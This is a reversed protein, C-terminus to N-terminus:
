YRETVECQNGNETHQISVGEPIKNISIIYESHSQIFSFETNGGKHNFSIESATADKPTFEILTAIVVDKGSAKIGLSNTKELTSGDLSVWGQLRPEKDGYHLTFNPSQPSLSHINVLKKQTTQQFIIYVGNDENIALDPYLHFWQTYDHKEPSTLQDIILLFEGPQYVMTRSQEIDIKIGSLTLKIKNNPLNTPVLNKRHITANIVICNNIESVYNISSGFVDKQFRSYNLEDIEVTNHARTSEIFMREELEYQYTYTGADTFIGMGDNFLQFTFDDAHKHQRSHFSASFALYNIVEGNEDTTKHIFLGGDDFYKLDSQSPPKTHTKDLLPAARREKLIPKSDGFPLIKGDPLCMWEIAEISNQVLNSITPDEVILGTEQLLFLFKTMFIHYDPSHEKHLGKKTFHKNLMQKIKNQSFETAQAANRLFPLTKGLTLLGVMQFLGHNSHTSIKKENMLELIHLDAAIILKYIITPAAKTTIAKHLLYAIKTARQGVAM